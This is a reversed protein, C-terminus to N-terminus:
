AADHHSAIISYLLFELFLNSLLFVIESSTFKLAKTVIPLTSLIKFVDATTVQHRILLILIYGNIKIFLQKACCDTHMSGPLKYM